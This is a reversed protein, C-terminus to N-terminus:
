IEGVSTYQQQRNMQIVQKWTEKFETIYGSVEDILTPDNKINAEVLQHIMYEYLVQLSESVPVSMDLTIMLERLINQSKQININKMEINNNEIGKKAMNLFKLCGNYLMLTLEGPTSQLVSNQQYSKYPNNAAM